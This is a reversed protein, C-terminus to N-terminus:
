ESSPFERRLRARVADVLAQVDIEVPECMRQEVAADDFGQEPRQFGLAAFENDGFGWYIMAMIDDGSECVEFDVQEIQPIYGLQSQLRELLDDAIAAELETM